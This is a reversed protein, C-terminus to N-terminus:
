FQGTITAATPHLSLSGDRSCLSASPDKLISFLPRKGQSFVQPAGEVELLRHICSQQIWIKKKLPLQSTLRSYIEAKWEEREKKEGAEAGGGINPYNFIKICM